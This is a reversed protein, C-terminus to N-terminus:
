KEVMGKKCVFVLDYSVHRAGPIWSFLKDIRFAVPSGIVRYIIKPLLGFGYWRVIELGHRRALARMENKTAASLRKGRLWLWLKTFIRHSWLNGHINFVFLSHKNRLKPLLVQFMEDRLEPQSNLFIRFATILDFQKGFLVDEQTIDAHILEAKRVRICARALMAEAPDVGVSTAVKDELFVLIRGTGCGFDLYEIDRTTRQLEGLERELIGQEWQWLMDDYSGEKYVIDEYQRAIRESTHSLRYDKM